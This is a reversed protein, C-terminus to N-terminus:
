NGADNRPAFRRPLRFVLREPTDDEESFSGPHTSRFGPVGPVGGNLLANSIGIDANTVIEGFNQGEAVVELGTKKQIFPRTVARNVRVLREVITAIEEHGGSQM